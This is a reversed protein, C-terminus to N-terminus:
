PLRALEEDSLSRGLEMKYQRRRREVRASASDHAETDRAPTPAHPALEITVDALALRAVGLRRMDEAIKQWEIM